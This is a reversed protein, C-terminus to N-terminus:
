VERAFVRVPKRFQRIANWPVLELGATKRLRNVARLLIACQDRVPAFPEFPLARLERCLEEVTRQVAMQKFQALLERFTERQIRVSVHLSGDHRSRGIGIAYGM